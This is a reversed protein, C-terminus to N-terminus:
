ATEYAAQFAKRARFLKSEAAKVTLRFLRAIEKVSLGDEYKLRLMRAYVPVLKQYTKEVQASLEDTCYLDEKVLEGLIPVVKLARKAYKRRYYDAVEHRAIAYMFTKLSSKFAYLPLSDLLALFVDQVVEESDSANGIRKSVFGLLEGKYKRYFGDFARREGRLIRGVLVKERSTKTNKHEQTKM